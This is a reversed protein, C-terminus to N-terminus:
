QSSNSGAAGGYVVMLYIEVTACTHAARPTPFIGSCNPKKWILTNMDLIFTDRTINYKNTDGIAGGFLVIKNKGVIAEYQVVVQYCQIGL